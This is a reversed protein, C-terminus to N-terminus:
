HWLDKKGRLTRLIRINKVALEIFIELRYYKWNESDHWKKTDWDWAEQKRIWWVDKKGTKERKTKDGFYVQKSALQIKGKGTDSTRKKNVLTWRHDPFMASNNASQELWRSAVDYIECINLKCTKDRRKELKQEKEWWFTRSKNHMGAEQKGRLEM